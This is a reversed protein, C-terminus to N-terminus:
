APSGGPMPEQPRLWPNGNPSKPERTLRNNAFLREVAGLIRDQTIAYGAAKMEPLQGKLSNKSPFNGALVQERTWGLVFADDKSSTDADIDRLAVKDGKGSRDTNFPHEPKEGPLAPCLTLSTIPDGDEDVGIHVLQMQFGFSTGTTGDKVKALRFSAARAAPDGDKQCEVVFDMAAHLGSWGRMGRTEDKGSHHVLLIVGGLQQQLDRFHRIMEGMASSNEEIGEAAQALTDICLIGGAWGQGKLGAVLKDRDAQERLNLPETIIAVRSLVDADPAFTALHDPYRAATQATRWARIRNPIGGQGEFPVYVVPAAKVRHGFWERGNSVHALLDLTLFSKYSGSAGYIAGIGANPIIGKVLWRLQPLADLDSDVLLRLHTPQLSGSAGAESRMTSELGAAIEGGRRSQETQETVRAAAVALTRRMYDARGAKARQGLASLRFTAWCERPSNARPLLLMVLALDAESQSEYRDISEGRFLRGLAGGDARALAALDHNAQDEGTLLIEPAPPQMQGVINTVLTQRDAVPQNHLVDGTCIIFREQSYVEVGDRRRGQGVEAQVWVHWGRGSRSRETYSDAEAIISQFRAQDDASTGDKVDLDICCLPDSEHLMFGVHWGDGRESAACCAASFDAWTAPDTSSAPRGNVTLPRKDHPAALAWQPRERLESPIRQWRQRQDPQPEAGRSPVVHM